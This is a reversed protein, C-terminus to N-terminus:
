ERDLNIGLDAVTSERVRLDFDAAGDLKKVLVDEGDDVEVSYRGALQAEMTDRILDAVDNEDTEDPVQVAVAIPEGGVPLLEFVITGASDADSSIEIRWKNSPDAAAPAAAVALGLAAGACLSKLTLSNRLSM